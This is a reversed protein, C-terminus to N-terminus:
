NQLSDADSVGRQQTYTMAVSHLTNDCIAFDSVGSLGVYLEPQPGAGDADIVVELQPALFM